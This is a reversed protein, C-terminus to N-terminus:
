GFIRPVIRLFAVPPSPLVLGGTFKVSNGRFFRCRLVPPSSKVSNLRLASNRPRSGIAYFVRVARFRVPARRPRLVPATSDDPNASVDRLRNSKNRGAKQKERASERESTVAKGTVRGFDTTAERERACLWKIENTSIYDM